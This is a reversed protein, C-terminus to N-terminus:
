WPTKEMPTWNGSFGSTYNPNFTSNNTYATNGNGDSWGYNYGTPASYAGSGDDWTDVGRFVNSWGRNVNSLAEQRYAQTERQTRMTHEHTEQIQRQLAANHRLAKGHTEEIIKIQEINLQTLYAIVQILSQEWAPSVSTNGVLVALSKGHSALKGEHAYVSILPTTDWYVGFPSQSLYTGVYMAGEYRLGNKTCTYEVVACDSTVQAATANRLGLQIGREITEKQREAAQKQMVDAIAKPKEVKTIKMDSLDPQNYLMETIFDAANMPQKRRINSGFQNRDGNFGMCSVFSFYADDKPNRVEIVVLAPDSFMDFNWLVEGTALNWGEPIAVKAAVVNGMQPDLINQTKIMMVDAATPQATQPKLINNNAAFATACDLIVAFLIIVQMTRKLFKEKM